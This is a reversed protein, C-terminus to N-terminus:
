HSTQDVSHPPFSTKPKRLGPWLLKTTEAERKYVSVRPSVEEWFEGRLPHLGLCMSLDCSPARSLAGGSLSGPLWCWSVANPLPDQIDLGASGETVEAGAGGSQLQMLSGLCSGHLQAWDIWLQSLHHMKNQAVVNHSLKNHLLLYSPVM